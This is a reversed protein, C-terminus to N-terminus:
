SQSYIIIENDFPENASTLVFCLLDKWLLVMFNCLSILDSMSDLIQFKSYLDAM